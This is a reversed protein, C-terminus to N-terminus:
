TVPSGSARTQIRRAPRGDQTVAGPCNREAHLNSIEKVQLTICRFGTVPPTTTTTSDSVSHLSVEQAHQKAQVAVVMSTGQANHEGLHVLQKLAAPLSPSHLSRGEM